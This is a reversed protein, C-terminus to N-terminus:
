GEVYDFSSLITFYLAGLLKWLNWKTRVPSHMSSRFEAISDSTRGSCKLSTWLANSFSLSSKLLFNYIFCCISFDFCLQQLSFSVWLPLSCYSCFYIFLFYGCINAQIAVYCILQIDQIATIYIYIYEIYISPHVNVLSIKM